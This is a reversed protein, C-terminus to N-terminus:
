INHNNHNIGLFTYKTKREREPGSNRFGKSIDLHHSGYLTREISIPHNQLGFLRPKGPLETTFFRGTLAPSLSEQIPFIGQLLFHCGVKYEQRPFGMFLPRTPQLGHPRLSDSVVSCSLAWLSHSSTAQSSLGTILPKANKLNVRLGLHRPPCLLQFNTVLPWHNLWGHTYLSAEM